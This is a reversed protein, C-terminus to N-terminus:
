QRFQSPSCISSYKANAIKNTEIVATKVDESKDVVQRMPYRLLAVTRLLFRNVVSTPQAKKCQMRDPRQNKHPRDRIPTWQSDGNGTNLSGTIAVSASKLHDFLKLSPKYRNFRPKVL